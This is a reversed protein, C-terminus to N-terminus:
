VDRGRLAGYHRLEEIHRIEGRAASVLMRRYSLDVRVKGVFADEIRKAIRDGESDNDVLVIIRKKDAQKGLSRINKGHCIKFIPGDYGALRLARADRPGEVAVLSDRESNLKLIFDSLSDILSASLEYRPLNRLGVICETHQRLNLM